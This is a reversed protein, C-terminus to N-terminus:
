MKLSMCEVLVYWTLSPFEFVMELNVQKLHAGAGLLDGPAIPLSGHSGSVFFFFVM